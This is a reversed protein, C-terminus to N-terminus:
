SENPCLRIFFSTDHPLIEDALRRVRNICDVVVEFPIPRRSQILIIMGNRGKDKRVQDFYRRLDDDTVTSHDEHLSGNLEMRVTYRLTDNEFGPAGLMGYYVPVHFAKNTDAMRYDVTNQREVTGCSVVGAVLMTFGIGIGIWGRVVVATKM